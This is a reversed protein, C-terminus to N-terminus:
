HAGPYGTDDRIVAIGEVVVAALLSVPVGAAAALFGAVRFAEARLLTPAQDTGSPSSPREWGQRGITRSELRM